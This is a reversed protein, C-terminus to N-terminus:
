FLVNAQFCLLAEWILVTAHVTALFALTLCLQCCYPFLKRDRTASADASVNQKTMSTVPIIIIIIIMMMIIMMM